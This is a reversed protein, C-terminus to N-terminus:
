SETELERFLRQARRIDRRQSGKDGGCLLLYTVEGRRGFYVRYGPGVHIRLESVGGGVSAVDGFQGAEAARIRALIRARGIPDRLGRLWLDFEPTRLFSPM